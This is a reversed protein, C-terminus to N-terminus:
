STSCAFLIENTSFESNYIANTHCRLTRQMGGSAIDWVRIIRDAGATVLTKGDNTLSLGIVGPKPNKPMPPSPRCRSVTQAQCASFGLLLLVAACSLYFAPRKTLLVMECLRSSKCSSILGRVISVKCPTIM